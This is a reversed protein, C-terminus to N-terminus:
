SYKERGREQSWSRRTWRSIVAATLDRTIPTSFLPTNGYICGLLHTRMVRLMCRPSVFENPEEGGGATHRLVCRPYSQVPEEQLLLTSKLLAHLTSMQSEPDTTESGNMWENMWKQVLFRAFSWSIQLCLIVSKWFCRHAASQELRGWKGGFMQAAHILASTMLIAQSSRVRVQYWGTTLAYNRRTWHAAIAESFGLKRDCGTTFFTNM